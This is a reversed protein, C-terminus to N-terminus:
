VFNTELTYAAQGNEGSKFSGSGTINELEGKGSKEVISFKSSAVGNEFTGNHQIVISGNKGAVTGTVIEFGVFRASNKSQYSMLYQLSSNGEIDGTYRQTIIANSQKADNEDEFYSTEDWGTIQFIGELKNTM